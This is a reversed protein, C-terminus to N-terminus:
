RGNTGRDTGIETVPDIADKMEASHRMRQSGLWCPTCRLLILGDDLLDGVIHDFTYNYTMAPNRHLLPAPLSIIGEQELYPVASQDIEFVILRDRRCRAKHRRDLKKFVNVEQIFISRFLTTYPFLTDTRTSIPPRRIM